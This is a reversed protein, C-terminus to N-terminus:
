KSDFEKWYDTEPNQRLFIYKCDVFNHKKNILSHKQYQDFLISFYEFTYSQPSLASPIVILPLALIFTIYGLGFM